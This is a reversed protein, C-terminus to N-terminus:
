LVREAVKFFLKDVFGRVHKNDSKPLRAMIDAARHKDIRWAQDPMVAGKHAIGSIRAMVDLTRKDLVHIATYAIQAVSRFQTWRFRAINPIAKKIEALVHAGFEPHEDVYKWVAYDRRNEWHAAETPNMWDYHYGTDHIGKAIWALQSQKAMAAQIFVAIIEEDPLVDDALKAGDVGFVYGYQSIRRRFRKSAVDKAIEANPMAWVPGLAYRVAEELRTTLYVSDAWTSDEWPQEGSTMRPQLGDQLIREATVEHPTGHWYTKGSLSEASERILETLRMHINVMANTKVM